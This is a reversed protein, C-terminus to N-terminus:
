GLSTFLDTTVYDVGYLVALDLDSPDNVTWVNVKLGAAHFAAVLEETLITTRVSVHIGNELCDEFYPDDETQSLYQLEVTPDQARVLALMLSNFSIFCVRSRSYEEDVIELISTIDKPLFTGKLEIVAVKNGAKCIRLYTEFTCLRVDESTKYNLLPKATLEAFTSRNIKLSSGDAFTVSDDHNCVFCGDKTKHIDTEIGYFDMSAAATFSSETNDPYAYRYGRHAIFRPGAAEEPGEDSPLRCSPLLCASLHTLLLLPLLLYKKIPMKM